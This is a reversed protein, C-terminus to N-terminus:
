NTVKWIKATNHTQNTKHQQKNSAFKFNNLYSNLLKTFNKHFFHFNNIFKCVL